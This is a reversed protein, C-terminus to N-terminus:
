LPACGGQTIKAMNGVCPIVAIKGTIKIVCCNYWLLPFFLQAYTYHFVYFSQCSDLCAACCQAPKKGM